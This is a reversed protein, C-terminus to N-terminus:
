AGRKLADLLEPGAVAIGREIDRARIKREADDVAMQLMAKGFEWSPVSGSLTLGYTRPDFTITLMPVAIRTVGDGNGKESM